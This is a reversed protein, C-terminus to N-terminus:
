LYTIINQILMMFAFASFFHNSLDLLGNFSYLLSFFTCCDIFTSVNWLSGIFDYMLPQVIEFQYTVNIKQIWVPDLNNMIVETRGLEELSGDRKKQYSVVM